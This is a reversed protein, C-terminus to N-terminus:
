SSFSAFMTLTKVKQLVQRNVQKFGATITIKRVSFIKLIRPMTGVGFRPCQGRLIHVFTSEIKAKDNQRNRWKDGVNRIKERTM